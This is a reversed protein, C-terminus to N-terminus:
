GTRGARRLAALLDVAQARTLRVTGPWSCDLSVLVDPGDRRVIMTQRGSGDGRRAEIVTRCLEDEAM